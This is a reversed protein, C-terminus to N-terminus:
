FMELQSPVPKQASSQRGSFSVIREYQKDTFALLSVRGSAPLSQQVKTALVTVQAESACYRLYVSYQAMEFGLDLLGTRFQQAARREPKTVVPLDFMVMVWMIRYGSLM